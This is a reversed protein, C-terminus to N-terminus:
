PTPLVFFVLVYVDKEFQVNTMDIVNCLNQLRVAVRNQIFDVLLRVVQELLAVFGQYIIEINSAKVSGQQIM